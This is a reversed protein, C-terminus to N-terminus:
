WIKYNGSLMLMAFLYLCNDYYRRKGTRLPTNWFTRLFMKARETTENDAGGAISALSAAANSAIVATPHMVKEDTFVGDRSPVCDWKDGARDFFSQLKAANESQWKADKGFWEHDLSMNMVTRYSDSYYRDFRGHKNWPVSVVPEGSYEAYDTCLGTQPHCANHLYERSAQAAKGWFERDRKDAWLAFLEYFHPLHYSPDTFEVGPVFKILHNDLNWMTPGKKDGDGNRHICDRLITRAWESYNYIGEGDGWRHSAFFLAMAFYEEGDPAPGDANKKGDPACSWAFYGAHDGDTMYMNTMTWKWIRDFIEKEDLQVCIMMGYSMGETRADVNGTDEVYGMDAGVDHYIRDEDGGRFMTEFSDKVRKLAEEDSIGIESFINTYGSKKYDSM